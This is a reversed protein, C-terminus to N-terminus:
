ECAQDSIRMGEEFILSWFSVRLSVTSHVKREPCADAARVDASVIARSLQLILPLAYRRLQQLVFELVQSMSTRLHNILSKSHQTSALLKQETATPKEKKKGDSLSQKLTHALSRALLRAGFLFPKEHNNSRSRNSISAAM